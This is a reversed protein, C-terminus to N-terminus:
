AGILGALGAVRWLMLDGRRVLSRGAPPSPRRAGGIESPHRWLRDDPDVWGAPRADDDLEDDPEMRRLTGAAEPRKADPKRRDSPRWVTHAPLPRLSTLM